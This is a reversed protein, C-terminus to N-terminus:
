SARGYVRGRLVKEFPGQKGGRELWYAWAAILIWVAIAYAAMSASHLHEGLGLGWAALIPACLISQALYCSLSRKGVATIATGAIGLPVRPQLWHGLLGFLAVYGVGGTLGTSLQVFELAGRMADSPEWAGLKASAALAGGAWGLAIGTIATVRLLRLHQGPQELIRHRAAWIGLLIAIPVALSVIGQFLILAGWFAVRTVASIFYNSEGNAADIIFYPSFSESPQDAPPVSLATILALFTLMALVAVGIVSWLLVTRDTRRLFLWVLILGVLGYAGLIDGFWLLLAHAFGFVLLWVNRRQILARAAREPTGAAIQRQYLMVIGYGFLFAFMPYVRLDVTTVILAQTAQDLASGGPPHAALREGERGWLYWPTNAIAILLLMFGRALDPALAREGTRAPGRALDKAM